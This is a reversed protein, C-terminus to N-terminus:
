QAHIKTKWGLVNSHLSAYFVDSTTYKVGFSGHESGAAFVSDQAIAIDALRNADM